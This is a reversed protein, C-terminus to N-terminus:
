LTTFGPAFLKSKGYALVFISITMVAQVPSTIHFEEAIDPTAPASMSSAFPSLFTYASALVTVVWKKRFTWSCLASKSNRTRHTTDRPSIESKQTAPITLATGTL